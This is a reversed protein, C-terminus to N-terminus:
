CAAHHSLDPLPPPSVRWWHRMRVTAPPSRAPTATGPRATRACASPLPAAAPRRRAPTDSRKCRRGCEGREPTHPFNSDRHVRMRATWAYEREGPSGLPQQRVARCAALALVCPLASSIHFTLSTRLVFASPCLTVPRLLRRRRPPRRNHREPWELETRAGHLQQEACRHVRPITHAVAGAPQQGHVWRRQRTSAEGVSQSTVRPM